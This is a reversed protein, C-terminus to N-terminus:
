FHFLVQKGDPSVKFTTAQDGCTLLRCTTNGYSRAKGILSRCAPACPALLSAAMPSNEFIQLPMRHRQFFKLPVVAVTKGRSFQTPLVELMFSIAMWPGRLVLSHRRTVPRPRRSYRSSPRAM